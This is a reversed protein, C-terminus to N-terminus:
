IYKDMYEHQMSHSVLEIQSSQNAYYEETIRLMKNMCNTVEKIRDKLALMQQKDRHAPSQVHKLHKDKRIAKEVRETIM